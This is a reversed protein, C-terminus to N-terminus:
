AGMPLLLTPQAHIVPYWKEAQPSHHKDSLGQTPERWSELLPAPLHKLSASDCFSPSTPASMKSSILFSNRRERHLFRQASKSHQCRAPLAQTSERLDLMKGCGGAHEAVWQGDWQRGASGKYQKIEKGKRKIAVRLLYHLFLQSGM